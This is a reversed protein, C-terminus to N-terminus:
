KLTKILFDISAADLKSALMAISERSYYPQKWNYVELYDVPIPDLTGEQSACENVEVQCEGSDTSVTCADWHPSPALVTKSEIDRRQQVDDKARELYSKYEISENRYRFKDDAALQFYRSKEAPSLIVWRASVVAPAAKSSVQGPRKGINLKKVEDKFYLNYATRPRKPKPVALDTHSLPRGETRPSERQQRKQTLKLGRLNEFRAPTEPRSRRSVARCRQDLLGSNASYSNMPITTESFSLKLLQIKHLPLHIAGEPDESSKHSTQKGCGTNEVEFAPRNSGFVTRM